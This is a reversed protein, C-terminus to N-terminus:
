GDFAETDAVALVRSGLSGIPFEYDTQTVTQYDEHIGLGGPTEGTM